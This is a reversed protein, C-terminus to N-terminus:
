ALGKAGVTHRDRGQSRADIQTSAVDPAEYRHPPTDDLGRENGRHLPVRVATLPLREFDPPLDVLQPAPERGFTPAVVPRSQELGFPRADPEGRHTLQTTRRTTSPPRPPTRSCVPHPPWWTPRSPSAPDTRRTKSARFGCCRCTPCRQDPRTPLRMEEIQGSPSLRRSLVARAARDTGRGAPRAARRRRVACRRPCPGLIPCCAALRRPGAGLTMMAVM